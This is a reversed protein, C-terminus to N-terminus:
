KICICNCFCCMYKLISFILNCSGNEKSSKKVQNTLNDMLMSIDKMIIYYSEHDDALLYPISNFFQKVDSPVEWEAKKIHVPFMLTSQKQIQVGLKIFSVLSMPEIMLKEGTHKDDFLKYQPYKERM